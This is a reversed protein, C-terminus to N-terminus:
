RGADAHGGGGFRRELALNLRLVNIRPQGLVGWQRGEIQELVLARVAEPAVGRAQAVRRAQYRAAEPSLHPDLGSASATVLDAPVPGGTRPDAARLAAVRGAVTQLLAPNTPGLNSGASAAANYPDPSTASPRGWFWQPQDFAQGVLDSGIVSGRWTTLSGNAQAPFVAQALGTVLVPYLGGTLATLLLLMLASPRLLAIFQRM